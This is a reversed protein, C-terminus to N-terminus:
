IYIELHTFKIFLTMINLESTIEAKNCQLRDALSCAFLNRISVVVTQLIFQQM